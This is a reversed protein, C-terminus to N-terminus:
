GPLNLESKGHVTGRSIDGLLSGRSCKRSRKGGRIDRCESPWSYHLGVRLNTIATCSGLGTLIETGDDAFGAEVVGKILACCIYVVVFLLGSSLLCWRTTV